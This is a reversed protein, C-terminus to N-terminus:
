LAKENRYITEVNRTRVMETARELLELYQPETKMSEPMRMLLEEPNIKEGILLQTLARYQGGCFKYNALTITPEASLYTASLNDKRDYAVIRTIASPEIIGKYCINGLHELSGPWLDHWRHLNRRVYLQRKKIGANELHLTQLAKKADRLCREIYDEDCHFRSEDLLKTDVEVIAMRTEALPPVAQLAYFPAYAVSLYVMEPNSSVRHLWNGKSASMERPLLGRKIAKRATIENTGHYILV